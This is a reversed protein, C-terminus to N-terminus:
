LQEPTKARNFVGIFAPNTEKAVIVGYNTGDGHPVTLGRGVGRENSYTEAASRYENTIRTRIAERLKGSEVPNEYTDLIAQLQATNLVWRPDKGDCFYKAAIPEVGAVIQNLLAFIDPKGDKTNPVSLDGIFRSVAENYKITSTSETVYQKKLEVPKALKEELTLKTM